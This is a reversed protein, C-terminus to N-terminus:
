HTVGAGHYGQAWSAHYQQKSAQMCIHHALRAMEATLDLSRLEKYAECATSLVEKRWSGGQLLFELLPSVLMEDAEGKLSHKAQLHQLWLEGPGPGRGLAQDHVPCSAPCKYSTMLYGGLPVGFPYGVVTSHSAVALTARCVKDLVTGEAATLGSRLGAEDRPQRVRGLLALQVTCLNSDSPLLLPHFVQACMAYSAQQSNNRM